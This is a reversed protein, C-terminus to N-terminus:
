HPYYMQQRGPSLGNIGYLLYFLSYFLLYSIHLLYSNSCKFALIRFMNM